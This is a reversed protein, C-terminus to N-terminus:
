PACAPRAPRRPRAAPRRARAPAACREVVPEDRRDEIGRHEVPLEDHAWALRDLPSRRRSSSQPTNAPMEDPAATAPAAFIASCSPRPCSRRRQQGVAAPLVQRRARPGVVEVDDVLARGADVVPSARRDLTSARPRPAAARRAPRTGSRSRTRARSGVGVFAPRAAGGTRPSPGDPRGGPSRAGRAAPRARRTPPRRRARRRAREGVREPGSREREDHAAGRRADGVLDGAAAVGDPQAHGVLRERERQEVREAAPMAAGDAFRNPRTLGVVASARARRGRRRRRGRARRRVTRRRRRTSSRRSCAAVLGRDQAEATDGTSRISAIARRRATACRVSPSTAAGPVSATASRAPRAPRPRRRRRREGRAGRRQEGAPLRTPTSASPVPAAPAAPPRRRARRRGGVDVVVRTHEVRAQALGVLAASSTSSATGGGVRRTDAGRDAVAEGRPRVGPLAGIVRASARRDAHEVRAEAPQRDSRDSM